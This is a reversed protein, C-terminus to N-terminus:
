VQERERLFERINGTFIEAEHLLSEAEEQSPTFFEKYDGGQRLEFAKSLAKGMSQPFVATKIFEQHFYSICSSHKSSAFPEFILLALVAYFMAYYARNVVARLSRGGQLLFFAEDLSEDAQLMRYRALQIRKEASTM